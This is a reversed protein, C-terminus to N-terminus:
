TNCFIPLARSFRNQCELFSFGHGGNDKVLIMKSERSPFSSNSRKSAFMKLRLKKNSVKKVLRQKYESSQNHIQAHPIRVTPQLFVPCWFKGLTFKIKDM